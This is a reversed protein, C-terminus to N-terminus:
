NKRTPDMYLPRQRSSFYDEFKFSEEWTFYEVPNVSQRGFLIAYFQKSKIKNEDYAKKECFIWAFSDTPRGGYRM